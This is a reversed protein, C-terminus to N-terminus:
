CTFLQAHKTDKFCDGMVKLTKWDCDLFKQLKNNVSQRIFVFMVVKWLYTTKIVRAKRKMLTTNRGYVFLIWMWLM